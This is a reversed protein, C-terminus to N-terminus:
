SGFSRTSSRTLSRHTLKSAFHNLAVGSYLCNFVIVSILFFSRRTRARRNTRSPQTREQASSEPAHSDYHLLAKLGPGSLYQDIQQRPITSPKTQPRDSASSSVM